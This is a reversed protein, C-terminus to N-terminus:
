AVKKNAIKLAWGKEMNQKSEETCSPRNKASIQKRLKTLETDKTGTRRQNGILSRSISFKFEESKPKRLKQKQEESMPGRKKGRKGDAIKRRTELSRPKRMKQKTKESLRWHCGLQSGAIKAINFFPNHSDIFFQENEILTEKECGILISFVLDSEGYKSFHNQLRRNEHHNNRLKRQHNNWRDKIDVASGIYVREPKVKSQIKYIGSNKM